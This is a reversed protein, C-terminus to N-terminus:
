PAMGPGFMTTCGAINMFQRYRAAEKQVLVEVLYTNDIWVEVVGFVGARECVLARWGLATARSIVEAESLITEVALHFSSPSREGPEAFIQDEWPTTAPGASPAKSDPQGVGPHHRM